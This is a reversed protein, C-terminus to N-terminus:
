TKIVMPDKDNDGKVYSPSFAGGGEYKQGQGKPFVLIYVLGREARGLGECDTCIKKKDFPNAPISILILNLM